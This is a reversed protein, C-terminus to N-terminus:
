APGPASCPTSCTATTSAPAVLHAIVETDTQSAFVYGRAQLEARLEDHNEIIGNHVLGIRARLRSATRRTRARGTASIRTRTTCRRRATRPGAPTPSAPAAKVGDAPGAVLEAVRSTSRARRLEGDQHVAVGCSDYGRYELRKLGEVLIPVINRASVAGVIGCMRSSPRTSCSPTSARGSQLCERLFANVDADVHPPAAADFGNCRVHDRAREAGAGSSDVSTVETAGGALAAVSFGGTYSYCNLVRKCGLQRVWRAFAARNDRQDLYFGTKHGGGRGADPALRARHHHSPPATAV